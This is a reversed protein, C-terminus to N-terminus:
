YVAGTNLSPGPDKPVFGRSWVPVPIDLRERKVDEMGSGVKHQEQPRSFTTNRGTIQM